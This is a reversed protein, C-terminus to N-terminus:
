KFVYVLSNLNLRTVWRTVRGKNISSSPKPDTYLQTKFVSNRAIFLQFSRNFVSKANFNVLFEFFISNRYYLIHALSM